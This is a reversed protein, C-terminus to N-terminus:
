DVHTHVEDPDPVELTTGPPAKIAILTEGSFSPLSLIDEHTIYALDANERHEGLERLMEQMRTIYGDILQEQRDLESMDQRLEDMEKRMESIPGM